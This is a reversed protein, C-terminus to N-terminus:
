LYKLNYIDYKNVQAIMGRMLVKWFAYFPNPRFKKSAKIMLKMKDGSNSAILENKM